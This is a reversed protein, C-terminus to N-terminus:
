KIIMNKIVYHYYLSTTPAAGAAAARRARAALRAGRGAGGRAAARAAGHGKAPPPRSDRGRLRVLRRGAWTPPPCCKKGQEPPLAPRPGPWCRGSRGSGARLRVASPPANPLIQEGIGAASCIRERGGQDSGAPGSSYLQLGQHRQEENSMKKPRGKWRQERLPCPSPPANSSLRTCPATTALRFCTSIVRFSVSLDM